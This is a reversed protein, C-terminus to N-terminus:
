GDTVLFVLTHHLKFTPIVRQGKIIGIRNNNMTIITADFTEKTDGSQNKVIRGSYSIMTIYSKRLKCFNVKKIEKLISLTYHISEEINLIIFM